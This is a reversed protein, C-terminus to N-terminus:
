IHPQIMTKATQSKYGNSHAYLQLQKLELIASDCYTATCSNGISQLRSEPTGCSENAIHFLCFSLSSCIHSFIKAALDVSSCLLTRATRGFATGPLLGKVEKRRVLGSGWRGNNGCMQPLYEGETDKWEDECGDWGSVRPERSAFSLSCQDIFLLSSSLWSKYM